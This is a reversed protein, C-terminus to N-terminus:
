QGCATGCYNHAEHIERYRFKKTHLRRRRPNTKGRKTMQHSGIQGEPVKSMERQLTAQDTWRMPTLNGEKENVIPLSRPHEDCWM